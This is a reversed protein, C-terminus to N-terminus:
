VDDQLMADVAERATKYPSSINRNLRVDEMAQLTEVNWTRRVPFPLGDAQLAAAIFMRVATPIDLGVSDFLSEAAAKMEDDIRIEVAHEM